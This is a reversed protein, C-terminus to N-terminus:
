SLPEDAPPEPSAAAQISSRLQGIVDADTHCAERALALAFLYFDGVTDPADTRFRELILPIFRNLHRELFMAQYALLADALAPDEKALADAAKATLAAMFDLQIALHDDAEKPYAAATFGAGRYLERIELTTQSFLLHDNDVYVSEWLPTVPAAPGLFLRTFEARLTEVGGDGDALYVKAMMALQEQAKAGDGEEDFMIGLQQAVVDGSVLELMDADPETAFLRWLYRYVFERNILANELTKREM